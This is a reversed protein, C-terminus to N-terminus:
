RQRLNRVWSGFGRLPKTVRMSRSKMIQQNQNKLEEVESRLATVYGERISGTVELEQLVIERQAVKDGMEALQMRLALLENEVHSPFDLVLFSAERAVLEVVEPRVNIPPLEIPNRNKRAIREANRGSLYNGLLPPTSGNRDHSVLATPELVAPRGAQTLRYGLDVDSWLLPFFSPDMGGVDDWADTHVLAGSLAVWDLHVTLDLESPAVDVLPFWYEMTVDPTVVGGRSFAPILGDSNMVVPSVVAPEDVEHSRKVLKQLCDADVTMDDQVIWLFEADFSERAFNLAAPYGVNIGPELITAPHLDILPQRFDNWVVVVALRGHFNSECISSICRNLRKANKGITTVIAVVDPTEHHSVIM